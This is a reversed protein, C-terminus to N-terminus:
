FITELKLEILFQARLHRHDMPNKFLAFRLIVPASFFRYKVQFHKASLM